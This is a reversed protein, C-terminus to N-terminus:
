LTLSLTLSRSLSLSLSSPLSRTGHWAGPAGRKLAGQRAIEVSTSGQVWIQFRVERVNGLTRREVDNPRM